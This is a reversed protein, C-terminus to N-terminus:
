TTETPVIEKQIIHITIYTHIYSYTHVKTCTYLKEICRPLYTTRIGQSNHMISYHICFSPLELTFSLHNNNVHLLNFNLRKWVVSYTLKVNRLQRYNKRCCLPQLRTHEEGDVTTYRNDKNQEYQSLWTLLFKHKKESLTYVHLM